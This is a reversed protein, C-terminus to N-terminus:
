KLAKIIYLTLLIVYMLFFLTIYRDFFKVKESQFSNNKRIKIFLYTTISLFLILGTITTIPSVMVKFYPETVKEPFHM